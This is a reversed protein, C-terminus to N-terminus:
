EEIIVMTVDVVVVYGYFGCFDFIVMVVVNVVNVFRFDGWYIDYCLRETGVTVFIM